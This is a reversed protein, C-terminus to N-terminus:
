IVICCYNQLCHVLHLIILCNGYFFDSGNSDAGIQILNCFSVLTSCIVSAVQSQDCDHVGFGNHECLGINPEFGYCTVEDLWIEGSGEGFHSCCPADIPYGFGLMNCVISADILDWSHDCVSGWTGRYLVEM